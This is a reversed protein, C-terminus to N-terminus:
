RELLLLARHGTCCTFQACNWAESGWLPWAQQFASAHPARPSWQHRSLPRRCHYSPTLTCRAVAKRQFKRSSLGGPSPVTSSSPVSLAVMWRYFALIANMLRMRRRWHPLCINKELGLSAFLPLGASNHMTGTHQEM